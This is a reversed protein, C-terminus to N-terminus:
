YELGILNIPESNSYRNRVPKKIAINNSIATGILLAKVGWSPACSSGPARFIVSRGPAAPRGSKRGAVCTSAAAFSSNVGSTNCAAAHSASAVPEVLVAAILLAGLAKMETRM